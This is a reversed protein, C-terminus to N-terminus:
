QSEAQRAAKFRSVRVPPPAVAPGSLMQGASVGGGVGSGTDSDAPRERVAGSFAAGIVSPLAALPPPPPPQQM